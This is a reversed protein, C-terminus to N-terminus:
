RAPQTEKTGSEASVSVQVRVEGHHSDRGSYDFDGKLYTLYLGLAAISILPHELTFKKPGALAICIAAAWALPSKATVILRAKIGEIDLQELRTKQKKGLEAVGYVSMTMAIAVLGVVYMRIRMADKRYM